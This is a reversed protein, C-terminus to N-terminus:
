PNQKDKSRKHLLLSSILSVLGLLSLGIPQYDGTEPLTTQQQKAPEKLTGNLTPESGVSNAPKPKGSGTNAPKPKGSGTNTPKPEEKLKYEYTITQTEETVNGDANADGQNQRTRVLQYTKGDKTLAEPAQDQYKDGVPQQDAVVKDDALEDETGEIVYRAIVSGTKVEPKPEEKLKYEYTITQTEETVNGDANADGQNQRTRVLQYTKGDKTLTEPAKDSYEDGVPQQDAVVKDDALEDETGEIVYRAIVSGTKVEPKPDEKLKYEYTITQTEETVNGDANADGQNQRTGVLQYTKGDKTLTEPAQDQYKDGVPQQDAVVKDDALEDETGEIVYRAIVSGTKVEPKPEEKLKYEYTITQTEETVNGDANADGENQRTRVLQYTKGDKTLTEPAQDQYKDGVPQQDAVVKDDALTEETGEIVYRAIVTGTKVEKQYVYTVTLQGETTVGTEPASGTKLPTEKLVYVEGTATEIREKRLEQTDYATGTLSSPTDQVAPLLQNGETDEYRVLVSGSPLRFTMRFLDANDTHGYDGLDTDSWHRNLGNIGDGTAFTDSNRFFAEDTGYEEKSFASMPTARHYLRFTVEKFTGLLQISGTGAAVLNPSRLLEAKADGKMPSTIYDKDLVSMNYTNDQAVQIRNANNLLNVAQQDQKLTIGDTVLELVTSNFSGKAYRTTTPSALVTDSHTGSIAVHGVMGSGGLGSIDLIPNTVERSFTFTLTAQPSEGKFDMKEELTAGEGSPASAPAQTMIGLAPLTKPDPNGIFMEKTADYASQDRGNTLLRIGKLEDSDPTLSATVDVTNGHEDTITTTATQYAATSGDKNIFASYVKGNNPINDSLEWVNNAHYDTAIANTAAEAAPAAIPSSVGNDEAQVSYGAVLFLSGLAVSALGQKFKRLSFRDKKITMKDRNRM